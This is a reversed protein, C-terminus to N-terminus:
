QATVLEGVAFIDLSGANSAFTSFTSQGQTGAHKAVKGMRCIISTSHRYQREGCSYLYSSGGVCHVISKSVKPQIRMALYNEGTLFLIQVLEGNHEVVREM